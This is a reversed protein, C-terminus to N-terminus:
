RDPVVAITTFSEVATAKMLGSKLAEDCTATCLVWPVHPAIISKIETLNNYIPHFSKWDVINHAEDIFFVCSKSATYVDDALRDLWSSYSEPSGLVISVNGDMIDSITVSKQYVNTMTKCVTQVLNVM